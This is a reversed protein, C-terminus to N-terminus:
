TKLSRVFPVLQGITTTGANRFEVDKGNASSAFRPMAGRGQETKYSLKGSSPGAHGM